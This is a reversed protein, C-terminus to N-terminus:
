ILPIIRLLRSSQKTCPKPSPKLKLMLTVDHTFADRSFSHAMATRDQPQQLAVDATVARTHLAISFRAAFV